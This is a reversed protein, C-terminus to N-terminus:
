PSHWLSQHFHRLADLPLARCKAAMPVPLVATLDTMPISTEDIGMATSRPPSPTSEASESRLPPASPAPIM